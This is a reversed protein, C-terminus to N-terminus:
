RVVPKGLVCVLSLLTTTIYDKPKLFIPIVVGLAGFDHCRRSSPWPQCPSRVNRSGATSGRDTTVLVHSVVQLICKPFIKRGVYTKGGLIM